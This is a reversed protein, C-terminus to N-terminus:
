WCASMARIIAAGYFLTPILGHSFVAFTLSNRQDTGHFGTLLHTFNSLRPKESRYAGDGVVNKGLKLCGELEWKWFAGDGTDTGTSEAM